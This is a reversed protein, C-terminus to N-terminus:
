FLLLPSFYDWWPHPGRASLKPITGPPFLEHHVYCLEDQERNSAAVAIIPSTSALLVTDDLLLKRGQSSLGRNRDTDNDLLM